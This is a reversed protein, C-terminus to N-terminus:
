KVKNGSFIKRATVELMNQGRQIQTKTYLGRHNTREFRGSIITGTKEPPHGHKGFDPFIRINWLYKV